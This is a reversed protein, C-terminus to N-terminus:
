RCRGPGATHKNIAIAHAIHAANHQAISLMQRLVAQNNHHGRDIAFCSLQEGPRIHYRAAKHIHAFRFLQNSIAALNSLADQLIAGSMVHM